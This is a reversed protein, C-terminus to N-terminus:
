RSTLRKWASGSAIAGAVLLPAGISFIALFGMVLLLVGALALAAAGLPVRPAAAYASLGVALALVILVWPLPADGQSHILRVYGVATTASIAAAM